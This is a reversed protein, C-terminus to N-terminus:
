VFLAKLVEVTKVIDDKTNERGISFRITRGAEDESKGIAMLVHSPEIAGASCASGASACIGNM